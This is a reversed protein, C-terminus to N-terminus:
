ESTVGKNREFISQRVKEKMSRSPFEFVRYLEKTGMLEVLCILDLMTWAFHKQMKWYFDTRSIGLEAQIEGWSMGSKKKWQFFKYRNIAYQEATFYWEPFVTKPPKGNVFLYLLDRDRERNHIKLHRDESDMDTVGVLRHGVQIFKSKLGEFTEDEFDIVKETNEAGFVNYIQRVIEHGIQVKNLLPYAEDGGGLRIWLDCGSRYDNERALKEFEDIKLKM